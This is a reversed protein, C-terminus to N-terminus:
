SKSSSPDDMWSVSSGLTERDVYEGQNGLRRHHPNRESIHSLPQEEQEPKARAYNGMERQWAQLRCQQRDARAHSRLIASFGHRLPFARLQEMSRLHHDWPRRLKQIGAGASRRMTSADREVRQIGAQLTAWTDSIRSPMAPMWLVERRPTGESWCFAGQRLRLPM